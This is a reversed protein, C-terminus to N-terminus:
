GPGIMAVEAEDALAALARDWDGKLTGNVGGAPGDVDVVTVIPEVGGARDGDFLVALTVVVIPCDIGVSEGSAIASKAISSAITPHATTRRYANTATAWPIAFILIAFESSLFRSHNQRCGRTKKM